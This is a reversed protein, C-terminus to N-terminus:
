FQANKFEPLAQVPCYSKQDFYVLKSLFFGMGREAFGSAISGPAVDAKRIACPRLESTHGGADARGKYLQKAHVAHASDEDTGSVHPDPVGLPPAIEVEVGPEPRDVDAVVM